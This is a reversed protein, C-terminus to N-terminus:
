TGLWNTNSIVHQWLERDEVEKLVNITKSQGLWRAIGDLINERQRGRARKGVIQTTTVLHELSRRRMVHGIFRAQQTRLKNM